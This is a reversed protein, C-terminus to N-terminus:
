GIPKQMQQEKQLRNLGGHHLCFGNGLLLGKRFDRKAPCFGRLPKYETDHIGETRM